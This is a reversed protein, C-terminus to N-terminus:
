LKEHEGYIQLRGAKWLLLSDVNASVELGSLLIMTCGLGLSVVTELGVALTSSISLDSAEAPTVGSIVRSRCPFIHNTQKVYTLTWHQWALM